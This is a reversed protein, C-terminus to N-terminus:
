EEEKYDIRQGCTSCYHKLCSMEDYVNAKCRPCHHFDIVKLPKSKKKLKCYENFINKYKM